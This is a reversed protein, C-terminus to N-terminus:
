IRRSARWFLSFGRTLEVHEIVVHSEVPMFSGDVDTELPFFGHEVPLGGVPRLTRRLFLPCALMADETTIVREGKQMSFFPAGACLPVGM